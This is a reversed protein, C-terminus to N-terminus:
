HLRKGTCQCLMPLGRDPLQRRTRRNWQSQHQVGVPKTGHKLFGTEDIILVADPDGFQEV